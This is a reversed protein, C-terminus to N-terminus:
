SAKREARPKDIYHADGCQDCIVGIRGPRAGCAPCEGTMKQGTFKGKINQTYFRGKSEANYFDIVTEPEIGAYHFTDGSKFTVALVKRAGDYGMGKINSSDVAEEPIVYPESM